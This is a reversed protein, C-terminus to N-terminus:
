DAPLVRYGKREMCRNVVDWDFRDSPRVAFRAPRFGERRCIELDRDQQAATVNRREYVFGPGACGALALTALAAALARSM